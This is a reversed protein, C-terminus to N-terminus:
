AAYGIVLIPLDALMERRIDTVWTDIYQKCENINSNVLTICHSTLLTLGKTFTAIFSSKMEALSKNIETRYKTLKDSISKEFQVRGAKINLRLKAQSAMFNTMIEQISHLDVQFYSAQLTEQFSENDSMTLTLDFVSHRLLATSYHNSPNYIYILPNLPVNAQVM